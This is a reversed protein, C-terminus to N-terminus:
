KQKTYLKKALLKLTASKLVKQFLKKRRDLSSRRSSRPILIQELVQEKPTKIDGLSLIKLPETVTVNEGDIEQYVTETAPEDTTVKKYEAPKAAKVAGLEAGEPLQVDDSTWLVEAVEESILVEETVAPKGEVKVDGVNM